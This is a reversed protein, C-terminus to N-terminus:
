REVGPSVEGGGVDPNVDRRGVVPGGKAEEPM